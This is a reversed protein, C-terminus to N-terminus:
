RVAGAPLTYLLRATALDATSLDRVSVRACMINRPDASHDLGLLHGIEHLAIAHISADDLPQSGTNRVAIEINADVIWWQDDRSWITRGSIPEDFQDRWTVHVDAGASDSVFAFPVPLGVDDWDAFAERVRAVFAPTWGAIRADRQIWVRLPNGTRDPWRALSSDHAQLIEGIYTAGGASRIRRGAEEASKAALTVTGLSRTTGDGRADGDALPSRSLAGGAANVSEGDPGGARAEGRRVHLAVAAMLGLALTANAISRPM